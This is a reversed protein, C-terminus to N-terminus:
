TQFCYLCGFQLVNKMVARSIKSFANLAKFSNTPYYLLCINWYLLGFMGSIGSISVQPTRMSGTILQFLLNASHFVILVSICTISVNSPALPSVPCKQDDSCCALPQTQSVLYSKRNANSLSRPRPLVATLNNATLTLLLVIELVLLISKSHLM